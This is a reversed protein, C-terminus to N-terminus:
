GPARVEVIAIANAAPFPSGYDAGRVLSLSTEEWRNDLTTRRLFRADCMPDDMAEELFPLVAPNYGLPVTFLLRGNARLWSRLAGVALGFKAPDRPEESYGVHELTSISVILAPPVPPRFDVVDQNWVVARHREYKDLVPHAVPYYHALVNGVEITAEPDGLEAVAAHAVPLEVARENDWTRNGDRAVYHFQRDGLRFTDRALASKRLSIVQRELEAVRDALSQDPGGHAQM